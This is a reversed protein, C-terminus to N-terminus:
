EPKRLAAGLLMRHIRRNWPPYLFRTGNLKGKLVVGKAKSFTKFGEPGHYHGMGSPGVGGFPIDEAVVHTLTDNVTVGGSHTHNLVYDVRDHDYDFYYLALPRPRDNIYQIAQELKEYPKVILIPGFIEQQEIEMDETTDFVLTIPMKGSGEFDAGEPNIPVVRAGKAEADKLYGQLRQLQRENIIATYDDNDRANPYWRSVVRKFEEIVDDMKSHHILTYDPAVCTQGANICKGWALREAADRIPFSQHILLPSKGGLELTVPTLNEAAAAMIHKGVASSGTFLLHDFPMKSFAISVDAEGCHVSVLDESYTEALMAKVAQACHPTFESMKIMVRNGAALATIMPGIALFFPYNWPVIIGVVGLPQYIVKAKAPKLNMGVKRREPRMWKRLNSTTYKISEVLTAIEVFLTETPCRVGFDKNAAEVLADQHRLLAPKLRNIQSIREEASPMSHSKYAGKQTEFIGQMAKIEPNHESLTTVTAVM